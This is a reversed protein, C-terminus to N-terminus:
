IGDQYVDYVPLDLGDDSRRNGQVLVIVGCYEQIEEVTPLQQLPYAVTWFGKNEPAWEPM